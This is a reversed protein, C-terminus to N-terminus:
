SRNRHAERNLERLLRDISDLFPETLDPPLVDRVSDKVGYAARGRLATARLARLDDDRLRDPLPDLYSIWRTVGRARAEAVLRDAHRAALLAAEDIQPREHRAPGKAVFARAQGDTM